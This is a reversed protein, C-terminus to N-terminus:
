AGSVSAAAQAPDKILVFQERSSVVMFASKPFVTELQVNCQQRLGLYIAM